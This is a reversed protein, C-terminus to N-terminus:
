EDYMLNTLATQMESLNKPERNVKCVEVGQEYLKLALDREGRKERLKGLHYYSPSYEPQNQLLKEFVLIAEDEKGVGVYETALAYNLFTDNPNDKLFTKLQEIRTEGPM